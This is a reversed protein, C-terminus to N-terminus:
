IWSRGAEGKGPTKAMCAYPMGGCQKAIATDQDGSSGVTISTSQGAGFDILLPRLVLLMFRCAVYVASWQAADEAPDADILFGSQQRSPETRPPTGCGAADPPTKNAHQGLSM